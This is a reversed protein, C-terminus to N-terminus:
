QPGQKAGPYPFEPKTPRPVPPRFRPKGKFKIVTMLLGFASLVFWTTAYTAHTIPMVHFGVFHEYRKSVPFSTVPTGDPDIKEAFLLPTEENGTVHRAVVKEELWFLKMSEVDNEPSFQKKEEPPMLVAAVEVVGEPRNWSEAGRPVWGRNVIVISGDERKLPTLVFFGQPSTAMGQAEPGMLNSPPRRPGLLIEKSFDYTGRVSVRQGPQDVAQLKAADANLPLPVPEKHLGQKVQEILDVKWFFRKTQWVGLAATAAVCSGFFVVGKVDVARESASSSAGRRACRLASRGTARSGGLRLSSLM